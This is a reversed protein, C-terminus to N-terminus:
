PIKPNKNFGSPIQSVKAAIGFVDVFRDPNIEDSVISYNEICLDDVVFKIINAIMTKAKEDLQDSDTMIVIGYGTNNLRSDRINGCREGTPRLKLFSYEDEDPSGKFIYVHPYPYKMGISFSNEVVAPYNETTRTVVFSNIPRMKRM